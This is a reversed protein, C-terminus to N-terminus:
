DFVSPVHVPRWSQDLQSARVRPPILPKRTATGGQGEQSEEPPVPQPPAPTALEDRIQWEGDLAMPRPPAAAAFAFAPLAVCAVLAGFIVTATRRVTSVVGHLGASRRHNHRTAGRRRLGACRSAEDRRPRIM